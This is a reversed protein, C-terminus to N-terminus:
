PRPSSGRYSPGFALTRGIPRGRISRDITLAAVRFRVSGERMGLSRAVSIVKAASVHLPRSDSECLEAQLAASWGLPRGLITDGDLARHM